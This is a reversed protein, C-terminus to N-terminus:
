ISSKMTKTKNRTLLLYVGYIISPFILAGFAYGMREEFSEDPEFETPYSLVFWIICVAIFVTHSKRM